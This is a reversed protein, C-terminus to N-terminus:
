PTGGLLIAVAARGRKIADIKAVLDRMTYGGAQRALTEFAEDVITSDGAYNVLRTLLASDEDSLVKISWGGSM